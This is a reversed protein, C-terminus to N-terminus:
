LAEVLRWRVPVVLRRTLPGLSDIGNIANTYNVIVSASGEGQVLALGSVDRKRKVSPPSSGKGRERLGRPVM